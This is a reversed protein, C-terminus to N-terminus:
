NIKIKKQWIYNGRGDKQGTIIKRVGEGVGDLHFVYYDYDGLTYGTRVWEFVKSGSSVIEQKKPSVSFFDIQIQTVAAEDKRIRYIISHTKKDYEVLYMDDRKNMKSLNREIIKLDRFKINSSSSQFDTGCYKLMFYYNEKGRFANTEPIVTPQSLYVKADQNKSLCVSEMFEVNEKYFHFFAGSFIDNYANKVNSSFLNTLLFILLLLFFLLTFDHSNYFSNKEIFQSFYRAVSIVFYLSSFLMIFQILALTREPGNSNFTYNPVFFSIIPICVSFIVAIIPPVNFLDNSYKRFYILSAMFIVIFFLWLYSDSFFWKHVYEIFSFVATPLSDAFSGKETFRSARNLNGPALVVLLSAFFAIVGYFLLPNFIRKKGYFISMLFVLALFVDLAVMSVESTGVILAVLLSGAIYNLFTKRNEKLVIYLNLLLFNFLIIPLFYTASGSLWYFNSTEPINVAYIAFFFVGFFLALFKKFKISNFFKGFLLFNSYIFGLILGLSFLSYVVFNAFVPASQLATSVYRGNWDFWQNIQSQVYGNQISSAIMDYDDASPVSFLALFLFPFVVVAVLFIVPVLINYRVSFYDLKDKM